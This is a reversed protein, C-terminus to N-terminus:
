LRVCLSGTNLLQVVLSMDTGDAHNQIGSQSSKENYFNVFSEVLTYRTFDLPTLAEVVARLRTLESALDHNLKNVKSESRALTYNTINNWLRAGFVETSKEHEFKALINKTFVAHDGVINAFHCAKQQQSSSSPTKNGKEHYFFLCVLRNGVKSESCHTPDGRMVLVDGPRMFVLM